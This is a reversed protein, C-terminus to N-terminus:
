EGKGRSKDRSWVSSRSFNLPFYHHPIIRSHLLKSAVKCFLDHQTLYLAKKLDEDIPSSRRLVGALNLELFGIYLICIKYSVKLRGWIPRPVCQGTTTSCRSCTQDMPLTKLLSILIRTSGFMKSSQLVSYPTTMEGM